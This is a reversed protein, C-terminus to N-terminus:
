YGIFACGIPCYPDFCTPVERNPIRSPPPKMGTTEHSAATSKHPMKFNTKAMDSFTRIKAGDKLLHFVSLFRM